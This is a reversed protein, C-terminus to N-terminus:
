VVLDQLVILCFLVFLPNVTDFKKGQMFQTKEKKYTFMMTKYSHKVWIKYPEKKKIHLSQPTFAEDAYHYTKQYYNHIKLNMLNLFNM